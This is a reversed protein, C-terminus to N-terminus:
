LNVVRFATRKKLESLGGRGVWAKLVSDGAIYIGVDHDTVRQHKNSRYWWLFPDDGIQVPKAEEPIPANALVHKLLDPSLDLQNSVTFKLVREFVPLNEAFLWFLLLCGFLSIPALDAREKNWLFYYYGSWSGLLVIPVVVLQWLRDVVMIVVAVSTVVAAFLGSM